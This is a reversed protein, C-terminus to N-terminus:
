GNDFCTKSIRTHYQDAKRLTDSGSSPPVALSRWFAFAAVAPHAVTAPGSDPQVDEPWASCGDAAMTAGTRVVFDMTAALSAADQMAAGQARELMRRKGWHKRSIHWLTIHVGLHSENTM